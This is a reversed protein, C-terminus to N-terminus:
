TLITYFTIQSCLLFTIEGRRVHSSTRDPKASATLALTPTPVGRGVIDNFKACEVEAGNSENKLLVSFYSLRSSCGALYLRILIHVCKRTRKDNRGTNGLM